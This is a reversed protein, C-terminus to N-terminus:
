AEQTRGRNERFEALAGTNIFWRGGAKTAGAGFRGRRCHWTVGDRTIGLHEAATLSDVVSMDFHAVAAGSVRGASTDASAVVRSTCTLLERRIHAMQPSLRQGIPAALRDLMDLASVLERAASDSIVVGALREVDGM